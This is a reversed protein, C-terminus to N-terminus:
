ISVDGHRAEFWEYRSGDQAFGIRYGSRIAGNGGSTLRVDTRWLAIFWRSCEGGQGSREGDEGLRRYLLGKAPTALMGTLGTLDGMTTAHGPGGQGKTSTSRMVRDSKKEGQHDASIIRVRPSPTFGEPDGKSAHRPAYSESMMKGASGSTRRDSGLVSRVNDVGELPAMIKRGGDMAHNNSRASQSTSQNQSQSRVLKNQEGLATARRPEDRQSLSKSQNLSASGSGSGTM